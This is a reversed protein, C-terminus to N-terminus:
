VHIWGRKAKVSPLGILNSNKLQVQVWRNGKNSDWVRIIKLPTGLAFTGLSPAFLHPSSFFECSDGAFCIKSSKYAVIATKRTTGGGAPLAIPAILALMLLCGWNLFFRM